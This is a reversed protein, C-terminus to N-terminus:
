ASDRHIVEEVKEEVDRRFQRARRIMELRKERGKRRWNKYANEVKPHRQRWRRVARRLRPSVRSFFVLSLFFFVLQPMVPILVGIVGLIFFFIGLAINWIKRRKQKARRADSQASASRDEEPHSERKRRRERKM